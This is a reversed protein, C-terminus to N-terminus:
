KMTGLLTLNELKFPVDFTKIEDHLEIVISGKEPFAEKYSFTFTTSNNSGSYGRQELPTKVDDVVLSASKLDDHDIKLKLEMEQSGDKKWGEKIKGIEAGHSTGKAGSKLSTLGLDVEKTKGAVRYQLTGSIEKIGTAGAPPLKLSVDFLVSAKDASLKPFSIRRDWDREGKLMDSGDSASASKLRSKDTIDLVSGPLEALVSLTYGEDHNFPRLDLKKDVADIRRVGVVRIDKLAAGTAPPAISIAGLKKELAPLNKKAAAVEAAYNFLPKDAGSVIASVPADEGFLLASFKNDFDPGDEADFGNEALWEDDAMLKELAALMKGGDFTIGLAGGQAKKFNTSSEIKGPLHFTTSQKLGGLIATFMPKSQQYKARDVKIKKAKEDPTLPKTDPKAKQEDDSKKLDMTLEAKGGSHNKWAFEMMSQNKIKVKSLDKFYATGRFWMRGDDLRKFSVDNWAEVGETDKIIKAIASQLAEESTDDDNTLNVKQFSCEHTMKGTGDPNLTIDQETEYCSSLLLMMASSSAALLSRLVTRSNM